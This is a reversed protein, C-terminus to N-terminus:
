PDDNGRLRSDLTSKTNLDYILFDGDRYVLRFRRDFSPELAKWDMTDSHAPTLLYRAGQGLAAEFRDLGRGHLHGVFGKRHM